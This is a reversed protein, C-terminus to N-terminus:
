LRSQHELLRADLMPQGDESTELRMAADAAAIVGTTVKSILALLEDPSAFNRRSLQLFAEAAVECTTGLGHLQTKARAEGLQKDIEASYSARILKQTEGDHAVVVDHGVMAPDSTVVAHVVGDRLVVGITM